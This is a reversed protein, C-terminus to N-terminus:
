ATLDKFDGIKLLFVSFSILIMCRPSFVYTQCWQKITTRRLNRFRDTCRGSRTVTTAECVANYSVIPMFYSACTTSSFSSNGSMSSLLSVTASRANLPWIIANGCVSCWLFGKRTCCRSGASVSWVTHLLTLHCRIVPRKKCGRRSNPILASKIYM